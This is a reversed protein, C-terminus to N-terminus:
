IAASRPPAEQRRRPPQLREQASAADSVAPRIAPPRRLRSENRDCRRAIGAYLMAHHEDRPSRAPHGIMLIPGGTGQGVSWGLADVDLADAPIDVLHVRARHTRLLNGDCTVSLPNGAARCRVFVVSPGLWRAGVQLSGIHGPSAHSQTVRASGAGFSLVTPRRASGAPWANLGRARLLRLAVASLRPAQPWSRSGRPGATRERTPDREREQRAGGGSPLSAKPMCVCRVTSPAGDGSEGGTLNGATACREAPRAVACSAPTLLLSTLM